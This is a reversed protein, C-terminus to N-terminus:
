NYRDRRALPAHTSIQHHRKQSDPLMTAGRSLRTLLFRKSISTAITAIPRAERSARSYFNSTSQIFLSKNKDRRALPAHTSIIVSVFRSRAKQSDRRALPAHTSISPALCQPVSYELRAERSARSYFYYCLPGCLLLYGTAGRSLRTLLFKRQHVAM